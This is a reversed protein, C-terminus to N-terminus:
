RPLVGRGGAGDAAARGDGGGDSHEGKPAAYWPAYSATHTLLLFLLFLTSHDRYPCRPAAPHSVPYGGMEVEPPVRLRLLQRPREAALQWARDPVQEVQPPPRHLVGRIAVKGAIVVGVDCVARLPFSLCGLQDGGERVDAPEVGVAREVVPVLVSTAHVLFM